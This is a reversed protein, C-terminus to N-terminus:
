VTRRKLVLSLYEQTLNKDREEDLRDELVEAEELRDTALYIDKLYGAATSVMMEDREDGAGGVALIEKLIREAEAYRNQLIYLLALDTMTVVNPSKEGPVQERLVMVKVYLPEAEELDGSKLLTWALDAMTQLTDTHKEGLTELRLRLLRREWIASKAFRRQALYLKALDDICAIRVPDHDELTKSKANTDLVLLYLRESESYIDENRYARALQATALLSERHTEGLYAYKLNALTVYINTTQRWAKGHSAAAALKEMARWLTPHQLGWVTRGPELVETLVKVAENLYKAELYIEGLVLRELLTDPHDAGFLTESAHVVQVQKKEAEPWLKKQILIQALYSHVVVLMKPNSDLTEEELQTTIEGLMDEAEDLRELNILLGSLNIRSQMTDHHSFGRAQATAELVKKELDYAEQYRRQYKLAVALNGQIKWTRQHDEGWVEKATELLQRYLEESQISKGQQMMINALNFQSVLFSQHKSGLNREEWASIRLLIEEAEKLRGKSLYVLALQGEINVETLKSGIGFEKTKEWAHQLLSEAQDLKGRGHLVCSMSLVRQVDHEDRVASFALDAMSTHPKMFYSVLADSPTKEISQMMLMLEAMALNGEDRVIDAVRQRLLEPNPGYFMGDESECSSMVSTPYSEMSKIYAEKAQLYLGEGSFVQMSIAHLMSSTRQLSSHNSNVLATGDISYNFERYHPILSRRFQVNGSNVVEFSASNLIYYAWLILDESSHMQRLRWQVLGHMSVGPWRLSHIPQIMSFSISPEITRRFEFSDWYGDDTVTLLKALWDPLSRWLETLGQNKSFSTSALRFIEFPISERNLWSLLVLLRAGNPNQSQIADFSTDWITWITKERESLVVFGEDALLLNQHAKFDQLYALPAQHPGLTKAQEAIYARALDIALPLYGLLKAIEDLAPLGKHSITEQSKPISQVLLEHAEHPEMNEVPIVDGNRGLLESTIRTTLIITGNSGYPLADKLGWTFDDANDFVMLWESDYGQRTKLWNLVGSIIMSSRISDSQDEIQPLKMEASIAKFSDRLSKMTTADVLLVHSYRSKFQEVYNLALQSKGAGGLGTIRVLLPLKLNNRPVHLKGELHSSIQKREVYNLITSKPIIELRNHPRVLTTRRSSKLLRCIAKV